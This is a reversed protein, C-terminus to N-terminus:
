KGSHPPLKKEEFVVHKRLKKDYKRLSLKTTTNRPNKSSIYPYAAGTESSVFNFVLRIKKKAM